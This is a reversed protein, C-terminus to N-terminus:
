CLCTYCLAAQLLTLTAKITLNVPVFLWAKVSVTCVMSSLCNNSQPTGLRRYGIYLLAFEPLHFIAVYPFSLWTCDSLLHLDACLLRLGHIVEVDM